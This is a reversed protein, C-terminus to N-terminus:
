DGNSMANSDSDGLSDDKARDCRAVLETETFGDGHQGVLAEINVLYTPKMRVRVDGSGNSSGGLIYLIWAGQKYSCIPGCGRVARAIPAAAVAHKLRERAAAEVVKYNM